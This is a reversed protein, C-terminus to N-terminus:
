SMSRRNDPESEKNAARDVLFEIVYINILTATGRRGTYLVRRQLNSCDLEDDPITRRRRRRRRVSACSNTVWRCIRTPAPHPTARLFFFVLLLSLSLSIHGRRM